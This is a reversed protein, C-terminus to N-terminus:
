SPGWGPGWNWAYGWGPGWYYYPDYWSGWYWASNWRWPSYWSSAYSWGPYFYDYGWYNSPTNVYVNVTSPETFYIEAMEGDGVLNVIEPNYFKEIRRTYTFDTATTDAALAATDVAFVGRRNYDDISIARSGTVTYTDAAPYSATTVAEPVPTKKAKSADYTIDDFFSQAWAGAATLVAAALLYLRKAKM